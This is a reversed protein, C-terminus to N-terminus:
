RIFNQLIWETFITPSCADLTYISTEILSFMIWQYSFLGLTTEM